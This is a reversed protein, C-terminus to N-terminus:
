MVRAFERYDLHTSEDSGASYILQSDRFREHIARAQSIQLSLSFRARWYHLVTAVPQRRLEAIKAVCDKLLHHAQTGVRGYAEHVLPHFAMGAAKAIEKYKDYKEQERKSAAKGAEPVTNSGKAGPLLAPHTM